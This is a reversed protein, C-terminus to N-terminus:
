VKLSTPLGLRQCTRAMKEDKTEQMRRYSELSVNAKLTRNWFVTDMQPIMNGTLADRCGSFKTPGMMWDYHCPRDTMKRVPIWSSQNRNNFYM